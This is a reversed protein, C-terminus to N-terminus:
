LTIKIYAIIPKTKTHLDNPNNKFKPTMLILMQITMALSNGPTWTYM